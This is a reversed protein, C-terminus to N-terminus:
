LAQQPNEIFIEKWVRQTGNTSQHMQWVGNDEAIADLLLEATIQRNMECRTSFNLHGEPEPTFTRVYCDGACSWYCFCDRCAERREAILGHLRRRAEQNISIQSDVVRGITSLNGLPHDGTVEYCTVLEGRPNVILAGFPANCFTAKVGGLSAGTYVLQRSAQMALEHAEVYAEVFAKINDVDGTGHGGRTTNFAPEVQMSYCHTYSCLYDIDDVLSTFPPTATLRIGYPFNAEDLANISEM